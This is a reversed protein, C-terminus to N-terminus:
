GKLAGFTLGRVIFRQGLLVLITPPTLGVLAKTAIFWFQVGRTTESGALWVPITIADRSVLTLAFLFENWAQALAIFSVATIGPAALPLVIKRFAAFRTYGDVLAAEELEEPLEKFLARMIITVFPITFTSNALVLATRTDLLYFTKMLLFFPVVLVVGPLINQGLFWLTIDKSQLKGFQFRALAYGATSGLFVALLASAIAVVVSNWIIKQTGPVALEERWNELTPTYQLFPISLYSITFVEKKPKLSTTLAWYFPFIAWWTIGCLIIIVFTRRFM